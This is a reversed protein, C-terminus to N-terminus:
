KIVVLKKTETRDGMRLVCSYIGDALDSCDFTFRNEGARCQGNAVVSVIDGQLTGIALYVSEPKDLHCEITTLGTVPNPYIMLLSAERTKNQKEVATVFPTFKLGDIWFEFGFDWTDVNIEIYNIDDFSVNGSQSRSWQTNGTLPITYHKWTGITPNLISAASATYKFYGGCDNGLIISHYQFGYGTTNLSRYWVSISDMVTLHWSAMSDFGPRYSAAINWGNGTVIHVSADGIQKIGYDWGISTALWKGYSPCTEPYAYWLAPPESLDQPPITQYVPDEGPECPQWLVRGYSSNDDYDYIKCAILLSDNYFFNNNVAYIDFASRNEFHYTTTHDFVNDTITDYDSFDSFYIGERNKIFLNDRAVLHETVKSSIALTNGEMSNSDIMYDKSEQNQYPPIPSGEWLEIGTPNNSIDNHTIVNNFGRDIAIGSYENGKVENSDVLSNFSYGLWFGYHSYNCINHKFINGNAFTAEIANHPSFSCQNFAFYNNNPIQSYQYQGLFIGDGSYTFDNYEVVNENSVIFLIAACDSPNTQRNVHSCDNHHIYCTDTFNLRIGFGCNWNLINHHIHIGHSDYMAIGDNEQQMTNDSLECQWSHDLLVGGGLANGVGAWVDIVGTTDKKNFSFTNGEITIDHSSNIRVAYYYHDVWNFNKITVNQSNEIYVMYGSFNTGHVIVSDGDLIINEKGVIRIVGDQSDDGFTYEGGLIKIWSDSPIVMNDTLEVYNQGWVSLTLLAVSFFTFIHKM